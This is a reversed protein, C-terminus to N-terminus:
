LFLDLIESELFSLKLKLDDFIFVLIGDNLLQLLHVVLKRVVFTLELLSLQVKLDLVLLKDFFYLFQLFKFLVIVSLMLKLEAVLSQLNVEM